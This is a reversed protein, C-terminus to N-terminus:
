EKRVLKSWTASARIHRCLAMQSPRCSSPQVALLREQLPVAQLPGVKPQGQLLVVPPVTVLVPPVMRAWRELTPLLPQARRLGQEEQDVTMLHRRRHQMQPYM